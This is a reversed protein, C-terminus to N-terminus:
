GYKRQVWEAFALLEERTANSKMTNAKRSVVQVNGPVYGKTPDIKDLSPSDSFAGNGRRTNPGFPIGLIPCVDPILIDEVTISCEIGQKKARGRAASLMAADPSKERWRKSYESEIERRSARYARNKELLTGRNRARYERHWKRYAEPDKARRNRIYEARCSKCQAILGRKGDKYFREIPLICRCKTCQKDAM